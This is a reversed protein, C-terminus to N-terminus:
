DAVNRGGSAFIVFFGATDLLGHALVTVWLNRGSLFYFSAYLVGAVGAAIVGASGQYTVAITLLRRRM